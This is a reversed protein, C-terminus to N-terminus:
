EEEKVNQVSKWMKVVKGKALKVIELELIFKLMVKIDQSKEHM